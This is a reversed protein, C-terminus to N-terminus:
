EGIKILLDPSIADPQYLPPSLFLASPEFILAWSPFLGPFVCSGDMAGM